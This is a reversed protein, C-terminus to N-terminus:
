KNPRILEKGVLLEQFRPDNRIPDWVPDIKLQQISVYYGIPM